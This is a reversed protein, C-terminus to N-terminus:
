SFREIESFFFACEVAANEDSDSGHVANQEINTGFKKRITGEAAKAPDTAGILQRYAEVAGEKELIAVYVPGSTIYEVLGEFFPKGKHVAYFKEANQKTFLTKKLAIIKFGGKIIADLVEAEQKNRVIEPKIITFTISGM